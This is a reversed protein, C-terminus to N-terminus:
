KLIGSELPELNRKLLQQAVRYGQADANHHIGHFARDIRLRASRCFYDVLNLLEAGDEDSSVALLSQARSCSAAMAFLEAGVDVFRGLLVQQRELKPGFRVMAHFLSRALRRSSRSVERLHKALRPHTNRPIASGFPLLQRPYWGAYFMGAKLAAKARVSMPLRSNLAAAAVKLHPDLAERAIFLRMIESSGEFITNIRCDRM